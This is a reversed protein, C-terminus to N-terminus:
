STTPSTPLQVRWTTASPTSSRLTAQSSRKSRTSTSACRARRQRSTRATRACSPRRAGDRCRLRRRHPLRLRPRRHRRSQGLRRDARADRRDRRRPLPSRPHDRPPGPQGALRAHLSAPRTSRSSPGPSRRASSGTARSGRHLRHRQRPRRADLRRAHRPRLLAARGHRRRPGAGRAGAARERPRRASRAGHAGRRDACLLAARRDPASLATVLDGSHPCDAATPRPPRSLSSCSGGRASLRACGQWEHRCPSGGARAARMCAIPRRDRDATGGTPEPSSLRSAGAPQARQSRDGGRATTHEPTTGSAAASSRM